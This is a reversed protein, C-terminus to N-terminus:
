DIVVTSNISPDIDFSIGSVQPFNGASKPYFSVGFELADCIINGTIEKLVINNFWPFIDILRGRTLVGKKINNRVSGGNLIVNEVFFSWNFYIYRRIIFKYLIFNDKNKLKKSQLLICILVITIEGKGADKIADAALNGLTSENLRCDNNSNNLEGM